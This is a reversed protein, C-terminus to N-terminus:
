EDESKASDKSFNSKKTMLQELVKVDASVDMADDLYLSNLSEKLSADVGKLGSKIKEMSGTVNEGLEDNKKLERQFLLYKDMLATILDGYYNAFKRIKKEESKDRKLQSIISDLSSVISMSANRLEEDEINRGKSSINNRIKILTPLYKSQSDETDITNEKNRFLKDKFIVYLALVALVIVIIKRTGDAVAHRLSPVLVILLVPILILTVTIYKRNNFGAKGRNEEGTQGRYEDELEVDLVPNRKTIIRGDNRNLVPNKKTTVRRKGKDKFNAM